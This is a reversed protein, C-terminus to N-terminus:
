KNQMIPQLPLAGYNERSNDRQHSKKQLLASALIRQATPRDGAFHIRTITEKTLVREMKFQTSAHVSTCLLVNQEFVTSWSM